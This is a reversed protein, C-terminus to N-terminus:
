FAQVLITHLERDTLPIPNGKMSSAVKSKAIVEPFESEVLGFERLPPVALEACLAEVWAVGDAAQAQPDGLLLQAVEDLRALYPSDAARAQLAAINTAMVFPLLRACIIGHPAPYMGGI